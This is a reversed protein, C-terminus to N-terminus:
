IKAMEKFEDIVVNFVSCYSNIFIRYILEKQNINGFDVYILISHVKSVFDELTNTGAIGPLEDNPEFGMQQLYPRNMERFQKVYNKDISQMYHSLRIVLDNENKIADINSKEDELKQYLLQRFRINWNM